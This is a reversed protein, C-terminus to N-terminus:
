KRLKKTLKALLFLLLFPSFITLCWSVFVLYLSWFNSTFEEQPNHTVAILSMIFGAGCALLFGSLLFIKGKSVSGLGRKIYQRLGLEM